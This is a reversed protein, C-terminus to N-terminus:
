GRVEAIDALGAALVDERFAKREADSLPRFPRRADGLDIGLLRVLEKTRPIIPGRLIVEIVRNAAHQLRRAEAVNGSKLAAAINIFVGPLANYTSGIIGDAGMALAGLAVEDAGSLVNLAGGDIQVILSLSYLDHSTFKIGHLTPAEARLRRMLGVPDTVPNAYVYLPVDTAQGILLYHEAISATDHRYIPPPISAVADAGIEAAHRALAISTETAPAGVHVMVPVRGGVTDVVKKAVAQREEETQLVGEGTSGCVFFGSVGQNLLHETLEGLVSLNVQGQRDFPTLIAPLVGHIRDLAPM